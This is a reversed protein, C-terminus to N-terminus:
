FQVGHGAHIESYAEGSSFFGLWQAERSGGTKKRPRNGRCGNRYGDRAKSLVFLLSTNMTVALDRCFPLGQTKM